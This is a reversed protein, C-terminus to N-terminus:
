NKISPMGIFISAFKCADGTEEVYPDDNTPAPTSIREIDVSLMFDTSITRPMGETSYPSRVLPSTLISRLCPPLSNSARKLASM